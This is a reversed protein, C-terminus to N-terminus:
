SPTWPSLVAGGGCARTSGVIQYYGTFGLQLMTGKMSMKLPSRRFHYKYRTACDSQVWGNPYGPSTFVTDVNREALAYIPKLNIQIPIDIESPPLSDIAIGSSTTDQAFSFSTTFLMFFFFVIRM